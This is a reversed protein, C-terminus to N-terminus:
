AFHAALEAAVEDPKEEALYHDCDLGRGRVDNAWDRWISLPDGYLREMDSQKGWLVLLPCAIRKSDHYDTADAARDFTANARYDECM